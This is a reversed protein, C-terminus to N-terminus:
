RLDGSSLRVQIGSGSAAGTTCRINLSHESPDLGVSIVFSSFPSVLYTTTTKGKTGTVGIVKMREAPHGFWAASVFALTYRTNEVRIVTVDKMDGIPIDKEVVLARAGKKVASAAFEHGDANAGTICIFLCGESVKRSDYVVEDISVDPSGAVCKYEIKELLQSLKKM